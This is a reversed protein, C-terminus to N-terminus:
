AAGRESRLWDVIPMLEEDRDTKRADENPKYEKGKAQAREENRRRGRHKEALQCLPGHCGLAYTARSYHRRKGYKEDHIEEWVDDPIEIRVNTAEDLHLM